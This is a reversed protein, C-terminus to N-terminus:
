YVVMVTGTSTKYLNGAVLGGALAATNDAYESLNNFTPSRLYDYQAMFWAVWQSTMRASGDSGIYIIPVNVPAPPMQKRM